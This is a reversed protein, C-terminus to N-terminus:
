AARVVPAIWVSLKVDGNILRTAYLGRRVKFGKRRASMVYEARALKAEKLTAFPGEIFTLGAVRHVHLGFM